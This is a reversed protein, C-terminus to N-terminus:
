FQNHCHPRHQIETEGGEGTTSETKATSQSKTCHHMRAHIDSKFGLLPKTYPANFFRKIAFIGLPTINKRQDFKTPLFEDLDLM